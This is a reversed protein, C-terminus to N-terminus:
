EDFTFAVNYENWRVVQYGAANGFTVTAELRRATRGEGVAVQVRFRSAGARAGMMGGLRPEEKQGVPGDQSARAALVDAARDAYLAQILVPAAYQQNLDEHESDTTLWGLVPQIADPRVTDLLLLENVSHWPRGEVGTEVDGRRRAVVADALLDPAGVEPALAAFVQQLVEKSAGNLSVFADEPLVRFRVSVSLPMVLIQGIVPQWVEPGLGNLAALYGLVAEASARGEIRQVLDLSADREVRAVGSFAVLLLTLLAVTWLVVVLVVGTQGCRMKGIGHSCHSSGDQAM